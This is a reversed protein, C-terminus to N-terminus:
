ASKTTHASYGLGRRCEDQPAARLVGHQRGTEGSKQEDHEAADCHKVELHSGLRVDRRGFLRKPPRDRGDVDVGFDLRVKRAQSRM